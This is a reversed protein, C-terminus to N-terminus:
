DNAVGGLVRPVTSGSLQFEMRDLFSRPDGATLTSVTTAPQVIQLSGTVRIVAKHLYSAKPLQLPIRGGKFGAPLNYTTAIKKLKRIGPVVSTIGGAVDVGGAAAPLGAPSLAGQPM